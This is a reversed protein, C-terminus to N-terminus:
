GEEVGYLEIRVDVEPEVKLMLVKPPEMGFQRIDFRSSGELVITRDDVRRVTMVDEHTQSVGRFTINGSVQYTGESGDQTMQGLVGEITPFRRADIRKRLERDEMRNGSQLREVALSIKGTPATSLDVNGEPGLDLDVYGEVGDTSSHIPHVNSRADIWVRSRDPAFVYRAVVAVGAEDSRAPRAHRV